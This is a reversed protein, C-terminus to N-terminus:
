WLGLIGALSAWGVLWDVLWVVLVLLELVLLELVLKVPWNAWQAL